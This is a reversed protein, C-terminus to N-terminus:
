AARRPDRQLEDPDMGPIVRECLTTIAWEYFREFEAQDLLALSKAEKRLLGGMTLWSDYHGFEVLLDENLTKATPYNDSNEVVRGLIAWYKANLGNNRTQKVEVNVESGINFGALIEADYPGAPSLGHGTVTMRLLPHDRRSM